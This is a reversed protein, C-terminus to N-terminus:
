KSSGHSEFRAKDFQGYVHSLLKGIEGSGCEGWYSSFLDSPTGGHIHWFTQWINLHISLLDLRGSLPVLIENQLKFPTPAMFYDSLRM